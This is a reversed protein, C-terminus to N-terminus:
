PQQGTAAEIQTIARGTFAAFMWEHCNSMSIEVISRVISEETQRPYYSADSKLDLGVDIGLADIRFVSNNQVYEKLDSAIRMASRIRTTLIDFPLNYEVTRPSPVVLAVGTRYNTLVTRDPVSNAFTQTVDRITMTPLHSIEIYDQHASVEYLIKPVGRFFIRSGRSIETTLTLVNDNWSSIINNLHRPDDGHDYAEVITKFRMGDETVYNTMDQVTGGPWPVSWDIVPAFEDRLREILGDLIYEEFWGGINVDIALHIRTLTPTARRDTTSLKAKMGFSSPTFGGIHDQLDAMSTWDSAGPTIWASGGWFYDDTGDTLRYVISTGAPTVVVPAIARWMTMRAVLRAAVTVVFDGTLPYFGDSARKLSVGGTSSVYFDTAASLSFADPGDPAMEITRSITKNM